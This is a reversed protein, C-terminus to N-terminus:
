NSAPRNPRLVIDVRAPQLEGARVDKVRAEAVHPVIVSVEYTGAPLSAIRYRGTDSSEAVYVKDTEISRAEVRAHQVLRAEPDSVIGMISARDSQGFVLSTVALCAVLFISRM